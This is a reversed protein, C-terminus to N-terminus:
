GAEIRAADYTDLMVVSRDFGTKEITDRVIDQAGVVFIGVDAGMKQKAFILMRLGASAMYDLNEMMFVLRRPHEKAAKEVEAQLTPAAAADLDGRLSITAIGGEETGLKAEFAM